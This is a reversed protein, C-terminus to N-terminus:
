LALARRERDNTRAPRVDARSGNGGHAAVRLSHDANEHESDKGFLIPLSPREQGDAHRGLFATVVPSRHNASFLDFHFERAPFGAFNSYAFCARQAAIAECAEEDIWFGGPPEDGLPKGHAHDGWSNLVYWYPRGASGDFGIIVMQHPWEDRTMVGVRRGDRVVTRPSNIPGFGVNSAITVPYGNVVADRIEASSHCPSTQRVPFKRAETVFKRPVGDRGWKRSIAGSYAPVGDADAPLVGEMVCLATYAGSCGEGRYPPRGEPNKSRGYIYHPAIPRFELPAGDAIAVDQLCLIANLAGFATCDNDQQAFNPRHKGHVKLTAHWLRVNARENAQVIANGDPDTIQFAPMAAAVDAHAAEAEPSWGFHAVAHPSMEYSWHMWAACVCAIIVTWSGCWIALERKSINFHFQM